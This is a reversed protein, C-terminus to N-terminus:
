LALLEKNCNDNNSVKNKYFFIQGSVNFDQRIVDFIQMTAMNKIPTGDVRGTYHALVNRNDGYL